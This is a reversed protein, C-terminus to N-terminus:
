KAGAKAADAAKIADALSAREKLSKHKESGIAKRDRATIGGWWTEYSSTGKDAHSEADSILDSSAAPVVAPPPPPPEDRRRGASRGDDDPQDSTACGTILLLTYRQLYTVASGMAQISNKNGSTDPECHWTVEESHGAKHRLTCTVFLLNKEQRVTWNHSLGYKGLAATITQVVNGITAHMYDTTGKQSSFHVRKDKVIRVTENAKFSAFAEAFARRAENAEHREVLAMFRELQDLNAGREIALQLMRQPSTGHPDAMQVALQAPATPEILEIEGSV